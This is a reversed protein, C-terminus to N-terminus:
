CYFGLIDLNPSGGCHVSHTLINACDVHLATRDAFLVVKKRQHGHRSFTGPLENECARLLIELELVSQAILLIDDHLMIYEQIIDSSDVVTNFQFKNNYIMNYLVLNGNLVTM